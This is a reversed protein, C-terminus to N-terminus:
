VGAAVDYLGLVDLGIITSDWDLVLMWFPGMLLLHLIMLTMRLSRHQWWCWRPDKVLLSRVRRKLTHTRYWYYIHGGRIMTIIRGILILVITPLFHRHGLPRTCAMLRRVSGIVLSALRTRNRRPDWFNITSSTIFLYINWMEVGFFTHRINMVILLIYLRMALLTSSQLSVWQFVLFSCTLFPHALLNNIFMAHICSLSSCSGSLLLVNLLVRVMSLRLVCKVPWWNPHTTNLVVRLHQVPQRCLFWMCLISRWHSSRINLHRRLFQGHSNAIEMRLWFFATSIRFTWHPRNTTWILTRCCLKALLLEFWFDLSVKWITLVTSMLFGGVM